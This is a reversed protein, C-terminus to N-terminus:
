RTGHFSWRASSWRLRLWWPLPFMRQESRPTKISCTPITSVALLRVGIIFHTRAIPLDTDQWSNLHLSIPILAFCALAPALVSLFFGNINVSAEARQTVVDFRALRFACLVALVLTALWGLNAFETGTYLTNYLLIGPVVELNILDAISDREADFPSTTELFRALRGDAADLFVMLLIFHLGAEVHGDLEM